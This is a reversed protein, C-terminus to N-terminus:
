KTVGKLELKNGTADEILDLILWALEMKQIETIGLSDVFEQLKQVNENKADVGAM